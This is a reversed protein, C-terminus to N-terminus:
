RERILRFRRVDAIWEPRRQAAYLLFYNNGLRELWTHRASDLALAHACHLKSAFYLTSFVSLKASMTYSTFRSGNGSVTFQLSYGLVTYALRM